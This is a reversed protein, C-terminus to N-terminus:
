PQATFIITKSEKIKGTKVFPELVDLETFEPITLDLLIANFKELETL